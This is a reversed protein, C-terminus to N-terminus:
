ESIERLHRTYLEDHETWIQSMAHPLELGTDKQLQLALETAEEYASKSPKIYISRQVETLVEDLEKATELDLLAVKMLIKGIRVPDGLSSYREGAEKVFDQELGEVVEFINLVLVEWM